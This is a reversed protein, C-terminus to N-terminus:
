INVQSIRKEVLPVIQFFGESAQCSYSVHQEEPSPIRTSYAEFEFFDKDLIFGKTEGREIALNQKQLREYCIEKPCDLYILLSGGGFDEVTKKLLERQERTKINADYICAKGSKVLQEITKTALQFVETSSKKFITARPSLFSTMDEENLITLPFKEVLKRALTTKGSGPIGVLIIVLPKKFSTSPGKLTRINDAALTEFDLLGNSM